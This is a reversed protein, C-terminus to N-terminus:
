CHVQRHAQNNLGIAAKSHM